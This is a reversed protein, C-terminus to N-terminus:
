TPQSAVSRKVGIWGNLTFRSDAYAGSPCNIQQVEHWFSSPFIILANDVPDVLSYNEAQFGAGDSLSDYLALAGGDFARPQRYFYYVFTLRRHEMGGEGHDRHVKYFDGDNHATFQMEFSEFAFRPMAFADVADQAAKVIGERALEEFPQPQLHLKSRRWHQRPNKGGVSSQELQAEVDMALNLMRAHTTPEFFNRLLRVPAPLGIASAAVAGEGRLAAALRLGLPNAPDCALARQIAAAAEALRGTRRLLDAQALHVRAVNPFREVLKAIVADARKELPTGLLSQAIVIGDEIANQEDVTGEVAASM